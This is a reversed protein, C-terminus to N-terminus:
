RNKRILSLNTRFNTLGNINHTRVEAGACAGLVSIAACIALFTKM